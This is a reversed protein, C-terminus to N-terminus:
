KAEKFIMRGTLDTAAADVTKYDIGMRAMVGGLLGIVTMQLPTLSAGIAEVAEFQGLPLTGDVVLAKATRSSSPFLQDMWILMEERLEDQTLGMM